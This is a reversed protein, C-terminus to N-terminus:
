LGTEPEAEPPPLNYRRTRGPPPTNDWGSLPIVWCGGGWGSLLAIAAVSLTTLRKRDRLLVKRNNKIKCSLSFIYGDLNQVLRVPSLLTSRLNKHAFLTRCANRVSVLHKTNRYYEMVTEIQEFM